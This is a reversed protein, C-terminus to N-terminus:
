LQKLASILAETLLQKRTIKGKTLTSHPDTPDGGLKESIISGVTTTVFGESKMLAAEVFEKPFVIGQSTTVIERDPLIVAIMAIDFSLRLMGVDIIGSEIGISITDKPDCFTQRNNYVIHGRQRAGHYIEALSSPQENVGSSTKVGFIKGRIGLAECAERVAQLKHESESGVVINMTTSEKEKM